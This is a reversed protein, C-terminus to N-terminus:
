RSTIMRYTESTNDCKIMVPTIEKDVLLGIGPCSDKIYNIKDGIDPLMSSIIDRGPPSQNLLILCPINNALSKGERREYLDSIDMAIINMSCYLMRAKKLMQLLLSAASPKRMFMQSEDLYIFVPKCSPKPDFRSATLRTKMDELCVLSAMLRLKEYIKVLNYSVSGEFEVNTHHAFYNFNGTCYIEMIMAIKNGEPSEDKKLADYFDALTPCISKDIHWDSGKEKRLKMTEIYDKYMRSTARHIANTEYVNCEEDRGMVSEVLSVMFDCKDTIEESIMDFNKIYLDCPNIYQDGDPKVYLQEVDHAKMIASFDGDPDLVFLRDKKRLHNVMEAKVVFGKGSGPLGVILTHKADCDWPVIKKSEMNLWYLTEKDAPKEEELVEKKINEEPISDKTKRLKRFLSM